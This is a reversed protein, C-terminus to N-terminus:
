RKPQRCENKYYACCPPPREALLCGVEDMDCSSPCAPAADPAPENTAPTTNSLQPEPAPTTPGSCAAALLLALVAAKM